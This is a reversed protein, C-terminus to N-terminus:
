FNSKLIEIRKQIIQFLSEKTFNSKEIVQNPILDIINKFIDINLIEYKFKPKFDCEAALFIHNKVLETSDLKFGDFIGLSGHDIIYLENSEDFMFNISLMTRDYNLFFLDLTFIIDQYIKISEFLKTKDIIQANPIFKIGLNYGYSKQVIDDFEDTGFNWPFDTPIIIWESIPVNWGLKNAINNAIFEAILSSVGNGSGIMKLVFFKGSETEILTPFSSGRYQEIFRKLHMKPYLNM